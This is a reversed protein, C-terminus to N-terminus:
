RTDGIGVARRAYRFISMSRATLQPGLISLAIRFKRPPHLRPARDLRAAREVLDAFVQPQDPSLYAAQWYRLAVERAIEDPMENGGAYHADVVAANRAVAEAFSAASRRSLSDERQRFELLPVSSPSLEFRGGALAIRLYCHVDELLAYREDFGGVRTLWATNFLAAGVNFFGEARFLAAVQNGELKASVIPGAPRWRGDSLRTRQFPGHVVAVDNSVQAAHASQVRMKEPALVDDADLFQIWDTGAARWGANRAASPGTGGLQIVHSEVASRQLATRVLQVSDDTSGADVVIVRQPLLTQRLISEIAEQVTAASNWTTIVAAITPISM